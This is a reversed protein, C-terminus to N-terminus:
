SQINLVARSYLVLNLIVVPYTIDHIYVTVAGASYHTCSQLIILPAGAVLCTSFRAEPPMGGAARHPPKTSWGVLRCM